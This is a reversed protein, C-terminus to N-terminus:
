VLNPSPCPFERVRLDLPWEEMDGGKSSNLMVRHGDVRTGDPWCQSEPYNTASTTAPDNVRAGLQKVFPSSGARRCQDVLSRVNWVDCERSGRGSEGGIIALEIGEGKANAEAWPWVEGGPQGTLNVFELLPECSVFRMAAPCKVLWPLRQDARKQDEVSTGLFVNPLPWKEPLHDSRGYGTFETMQGSWVTNYIRQKLRRTALYEAMRKPRKTLVMFDVDQRIAFTAFIMDISGRTVWEGFLDTMDCVFVAPRDRGNKFPGRPRFRLIHRLEKAHLVHQVERTSQRTYPQHTGFRGNLVAAYCNLCGPSIKACSWGTDGNFIARLPNSSYDCWEIDTRAPM